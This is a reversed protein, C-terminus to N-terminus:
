TEREGLYIFNCEYWCVVNIPCNSNHPDNVNINKRNPVYRLLLDAKLKNENERWM